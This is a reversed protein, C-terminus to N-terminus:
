EVLKVVPASYEEKEFTLDPGDGTDFKTVNKPADSATLVYDEEEQKQNKVRAVQQPVDFQHEM